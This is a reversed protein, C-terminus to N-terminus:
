LVMGGRNRTSARWTKTYDIAKYMWEYKKPHGDEDLLYTWNSQGTGGKGRPITHTRQGPRLLVAHEPKCRFLYRLGDRAEGPGTGAERYVRAQEYWGVVVQRDSGRAFFIVRVGDLTSGSAGPDIRELKVRDNRVAPRAYGYFYGGVKHFNYSEWPVEGDEVWQGGHRPAETESSVGDYFEMWAIRCFLVRAM